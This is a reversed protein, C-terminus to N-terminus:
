GSRDARQDETFIPVPLQGVHPPGARAVRRAGRPLQPLLKMRELDVLGRKVAAPRGTIDGTIERFPNPRLEDGFDLEPRPGGVTQEAM